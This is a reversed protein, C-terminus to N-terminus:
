LIKLAQIDACALATPMTAVKRYETFWRYFKPKTNEQTIIKYTLTTNIIMPLILILISFNVFHSPLYYLACILLFSYTLLFLHFYTMLGRFIFYLFTELM